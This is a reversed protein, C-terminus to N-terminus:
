AAQSIDPGNAAAPNAGPWPQATTLFHDVRTMLEDVSRCTHNRTVNAHLQKWLMEIRNEFPCYPPLFHLVIPKLEDTKLAERTAKSDHASCNDVILHIKKARPYAKILARLHDIFLASDRRKGWVWVIRGSKADLAGAVHRKANVGPTLAVKQRKPLMWDRGIKPNLHVEVEDQYLLVEDDPLDGTARRIKAMRAAKRQRSWPCRVTPRPAGWRAGLRKLMRGITTIGLRVGTRKELELAILERTWTSRQWGSETPAEEVVEAVAQLLDPDVKTQGNGSRRDVLGAEGEAVFRHAWRLATSIACGLAEAIEGSSKDASWLLVIQYRLRLRADRTGHLKRRLRRKVRRSLRVVIRAM